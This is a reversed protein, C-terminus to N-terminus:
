AEYLSYGQLVITASGAVAGAAPDTVTITFKTNANVLMEDKLDRSDIRTGAFASRPEAQSQWTYNLSNDTVQILSEYQGYLGPAATTPDATDSCYCEKLLFPASPDINITGSVAGNAVGARVITVPYDRYKLIMLKKNITRYAGNAAM